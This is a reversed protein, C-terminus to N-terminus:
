EEAVPLPQCLCALDPGDCSIKKVPAPGCWEENLVEAVTARHECEVLKNSVEIREVTPVISGIVLGIFCGMAGTFILKAKM